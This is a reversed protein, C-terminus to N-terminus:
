PLFLVQVQSFNMQFLDQVVRGCPRTNNNLIFMLQYKLQHKRKGFVKNISNRELRLAQRGAQAEDGEDKEPEQDRRVGAVDVPAM